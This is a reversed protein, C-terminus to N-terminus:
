HMERGKLIMPLNTIYYFLLDKILFFKVIYMYDNEYKKLYTYVILDNFEIINFDSKTFGM